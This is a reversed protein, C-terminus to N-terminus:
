GERVVAVGLAPLELAGSIDRSTLLERGQHLLRVSRPTTEHNLYFRYTTGEKVRVGIEVAPDLDDLVAVGADRLPQKLFERLATGDLFTGLYYTSGKGFGNRVAAPAGSYYRGQYSLVTTAGEKPALVEALHLAPVHAGSATIVGVRESPYHSFTDYDRVECGALDGLGAPLREDLVANESDKVSSRAGLVLVGGGRVYEHLARLIMADSVHQSPAIVAKYGALDDHPSVVDVTVGLEASARAYDSAVQFYSIGTAGHPQIQLAWLSDYDFLIAVDSRVESGGVEPGLGQIEKGFRVLEAYRDGPIGHQPLIGHWYQETGFRATRWRFFSIFDAGHAISQYAWIRMRGPEPTPLFRDWGGPGSSQEMVWVNRGKLGRMLHHPLSSPARHAAESEFFPYNDWSVVDLDHSLDFYNIDTFKGMLNHTVTVSPSHARIVGALERNFLVQVESSFRKFDLSLGPNNGLLGDRDATDRPLSVESFDNYAQSWFSTGWAANLRAIDGEFRRSLWGQFEHECHTCYCTATGHCGLENDTQWAVVNPHEAFHAVVAETIRLAHERYGPHNKCADQRQGFEKIQGNSKVQHIDPFKRHLWAPYTPTPTCLIASINKGAFVDLARELWGFEFKGETPEFTHWAFEGLRVTRIGARSMLEADEPWRSEPWQEPYYATGLQLDTNDHRQAM